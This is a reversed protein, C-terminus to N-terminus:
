HSSNLRTSKRDGPISPNRQARGMRRVRSLLHDAFSAFNAFSLAFALCTPQPGALRMRPHVTACGDRVTTGAFAPIVSVPKNLTDLTIGLDQNTKKAGKANKASMREQKQTTARAKGIGSTGVVPM